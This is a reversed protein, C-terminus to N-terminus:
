DIKQRGEFPGAKRESLEGIFLRRLLLLGDLATIWCHLVRGAGLFHGGLGVIAARSSGPSRAASRSCNIIISFEQMFMCSFPRKPLSVPFDEPFFIIKPVKEHCPVFFRRYYFPARIKKWPGSIRHFFFIDGPFFHRINM